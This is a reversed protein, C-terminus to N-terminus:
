MPFLHLPQFILESLGIESGCVDVACIGSACRGFESHRKVRSNFAFMTGNKIKWAM